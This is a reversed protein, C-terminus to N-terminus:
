GNTTLSPTLLNCPPSSHYMLYQATLFLILLTGRLPSSSVTSYTLLEKTIYIWGFIAYIPYAQTAFCVSAQKYFVPVLHNCWSLLFAHHGSGTGLPLPAIFPHSFGKTSINLTKFNIREGVFMPLFACLSGKSKLQTNLVFEHKECTLLTLMLSSRNELYNESSGFVYPLLLAPCWPM